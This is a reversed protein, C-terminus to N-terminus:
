QQFKLNKIWLGWQRFEELPNVYKDLIITVYEASIFFALLINWETNQIGEPMTSM